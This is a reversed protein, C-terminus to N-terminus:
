PGIPLLEIGSDIAAQALAHDLTLLRARYQLARTLLYGDYAYLAHEAAIDLALAPDVEVFRIAIAAYAKLEAHLQVVALDVRGSRCQSAARAKVM